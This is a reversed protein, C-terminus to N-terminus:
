WIELDPFVFFNRVREHFYVSLSCLIFNRADKNVRGTQAATKTNAAHRGSQRAM